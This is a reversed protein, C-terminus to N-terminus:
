SEEGDTIWFDDINIKAKGMTSNNEREKGRVLLYRRNKSIQVTSIGKCLTSIIYIFLNYINQHPDVYRFRISFDRSGSNNYLLIRWRKKDGLFRFALRTHRKRNTSISVIKFNRYSVRLLCLVTPKNPFVRFLVYVSIGRIKCFKSGGFYIYVLTYISNLDRNPGNEQFIRPLAGRGGNPNGSCPTSSHLYRISTFFIKTFFFSFVRVRIKSIRVNKVAYFFFFFVFVWGTTTKYARLRGGYVCEGVVRM